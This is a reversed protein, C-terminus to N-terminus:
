PLSAPNGDSIDSLYGLININLTASVSHVSGDGLLFNAIGTHCGGYSAIRADNHLFKTEFEVTVPDMPSPMVVVVTETIGTGDDAGKAIYATKSGTTFNSYRAYNHSAYFGNTSLYSCDWGVEPNSLPSSGECLGIKSTPIYKEAIFFQNSLGDAISDFNLMSYWNNIDATSNAQHIRFPGSNNTNSLPSNMFMNILPLDSSSVDQLTVVAAYDGRPGSLFNSGTLPRTILSGGGRRAPCRYISVSGFAKRDAETLKADDTGAATGNWWDNNLPAAFSKESGQVNTEIKEYLAIQEIYPYLLGLFSTRDTRGVHLPPIGGRGDHFNHLALGIQKLNNSCSMRRAAERAAQVAPLLLAILTGVIAIVVLLEVLTFGLM